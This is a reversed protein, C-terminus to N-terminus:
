RSHKEKWQHDAKKVQGKDSNKKWKKLTDAWLGNYFLYTKNNIIKFKKPDVEVLDGGNAMAYACWGKYAPMMKEPDKIFLDKNKLSSFYITTGKYAYKFEKKGQTAKNETLYSVPDYGDIFIGDNQFFAAEKAHLISCFLLSIILLNKKM